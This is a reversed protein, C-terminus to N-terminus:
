EYKFLEVIDVDVTYFLYFCTFAIMLYSYKITPIGKSIIISRFFFLFIEKLLIVITILFLNKSLVTIFLFFFFFPYFKLEIMTNKKIIGSGEYYAIVLHSLCSVWTIIAFIKALNIIEINTNNKLWFSFFNDFFNFLFFIIIPVIFIFIKLSLLLDKTLRKDKELAISPLLVASIGKSIISLKGTLQQPISYFALAIPGIFIKILYKDTFDYAINLISSVSFWKQDFNYNIKPKKKFFFNLPKKSFLYFSSITIVTIKIILSILFITKYSTYYFILFFPPFSLSVGYFLLNILMLKVFLKKGLFLGEITVFINTAFINLISVLLIYSSFFLFFKNIIFFILLVLFILLSNKITKKLLFWSLEDVSKNQAISIASIKGLGLNFIQGIFGLFHLFIYSGYEEASGYKLYIPISLLSLLISIFGPLSSIFSNLFFKKNLIHMM